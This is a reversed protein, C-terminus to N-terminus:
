GGARARFIVGMKDLEDLMARINDWPYPPFSDNTDGLMHRYGRTEEVVKRARRRVCEIDTEYFLSVNVGGRSVIRSGLRARSAKLDSVDGLPPHSFSEIVDIGMAEYVGTDILKKMLGCNHVWFRMGSAHASETLRRTQPVIYKEYIAPSFIELGNIASIIFDAGAEAACRLWVESAQGQLDFMREMESPHDALFYFATDPAIYANSLLVFAAPGISASLIFDGPWKKAEKSMGSIVKKAVRPDNIVADAASEILYLWAPLDDDSKIFHEEWCAPANDPTVFIDSLEGRPTRITTLRRVGGDYAEDRVKLEIGDLFEVVDFPSPGGLRGAVHIGTERSCRVVMEPTVPSEQAGVFSIPVGKKRPSVGFYSAATCTGGFDGMFVPVLDPDGNEMWQILPKKRM